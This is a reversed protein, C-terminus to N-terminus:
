NKDIGVAVVSVKISDGLNPDHSAGWVINSNPHAQEQIYSAVQEIEFLSLDDSGTINILIGKAGSIQKEDLVPNNIADFAANIGRDHGSGIGTGIVAKKCPVAGDSLHDDSGSLLVTRVDSFDLNILGPKLILDTITIVGQHLVEDVEKFADILTINKKKKKENQNNQNNNNTSRSTSFRNKPRSNQDNEDEDENENENMKSKIDQAYTILNQNNIVIMTDIHQELEKIGIESYRRRINGEFTFPSTVVGITLINLEKLMQAIVPSAGTGTGGGMGAAIFVMDMGQLAEKITDISQIAAKRGVGPKAGAGLGKTVGLGLQIRNPTLSQSLAQGDTNAVFFDVDSAGSMIMHNVANGGGGGVGIVGIKPRFSSFDDESFDVDNSFDEVKEQEIENHNNEIEEEVEVEVEFGNKNDNNDYLKHQFYSFNNKCIISNLDSNYFQINKENFKDYNNFKYPQLYEKLNIKKSYLMNRKILNNDNNNKSLLCTSKFDTKVFARRALLM